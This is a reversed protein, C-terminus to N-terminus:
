DKTLVQTPTRNILEFAIKKVKKLFRRSILLYIGFVLFSSIFYFLALQDGEPKASNSLVITPIAILTLAMLLTIATYLQLHVPQFKSVWTEINRLIPPDTSFLQSLKEEYNKIITMQYAVLSLKLLDRLGIVAYCVIVVLFIAFGLKEPHKILESDVDGQTVWSGIGIFLPGIFGLLKFDALSSDILENLRNQHKLYESHLLDIKKESDM